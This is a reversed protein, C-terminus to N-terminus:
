PLVGDSCVRAIVRPSSYGNFLFADAVARPAHLSMPCSVCLLVCLLSVCCSCAVPVRSCPVQLFPCPRVEQDSQRYFERHCVAALMEAFIQGTYVSHQSDTIERIEKEKTDRSFRKAQIPLNTQASYLIPRSPPFSSECRISSICRFSTICRVSSISSSISSSIHAPYMLPFVHVSIFLRFYVVFVLVCVRGCFGKFWGWLCRFGCCPCFWLLRPIYRLHFFM